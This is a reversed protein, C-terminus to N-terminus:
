EEQGHQWDAVTVPITSSSHRATLISHVPLPRYRRTSAFTVSSDLGRIFVSNRPWPYVPTKLGRIFVSKCPYSRGHKDTNIRPQRETNMRPQGGGDRMPWQYCPNKLGRIFVSKCPYTKGHKDTNIRPQRETNMGPQGGGERMPWPYCANKLGRIFVSKCPYSRGHKDTNMRPQRETNM